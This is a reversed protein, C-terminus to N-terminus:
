ELLVEARYPLAESAGCKSQVAIPYANTFVLWDDVKVFRHKQVSYKVYLGQSALYTSMKRPPFYMAYCSQADYEYEYEYPVSLALFSVSYRM